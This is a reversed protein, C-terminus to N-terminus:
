WGKDKGEQRKAFYYGLILMFGADVLGDFGSLKLIVFSMIALTAIIDKPKVEFKM